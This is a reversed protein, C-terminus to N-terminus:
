PATSLRRVQTASITEAVEDLNIREASAAATCSTPVPV